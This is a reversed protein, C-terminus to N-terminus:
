RKKVPLYGIGWMDMQDLLRRLLTDSVGEMSIDVKGGEEFDLADPSHKRLLLFIVGVQEPTCLTVYM